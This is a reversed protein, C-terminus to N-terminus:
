VSVRQCGPNHDWEWWSLKKAHLRTQQDAV